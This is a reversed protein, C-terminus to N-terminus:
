LQWPGSEFGFLKPDQHGEFLVIFHYDSPELQFAHMGRKTLLQELDKKDAAMAQSRAKKVAEIKDAATVRAVYCDTEPENEWGPVDEFRYGRMLVVTYPQHLTTINTM